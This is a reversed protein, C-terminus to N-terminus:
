RASPSRPSQGIPFQGEPAGAEDDSSHQKLLAKAFLFVICGVVLAALTCLLYLAIANM